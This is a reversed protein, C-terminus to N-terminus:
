RASISKEASSSAPVTRWWAQHGAIRVHLNFTLLDTQVLGATALLEGANIRQVASFGGRAAKKMGASKRTPHNAKNPLTTAASRLAPM